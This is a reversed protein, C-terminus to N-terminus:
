RRVTLVTPRGVITSKKPKELVIGDLSEEAPQSLGSAGAVADVALASGSFGALLVGVLTVVGFPKLIGRDRMSSKRNLRNYIGRNKMAQGKRTDLSQKIKVIVDQLRKGSGSFGAENM